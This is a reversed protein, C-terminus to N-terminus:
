VLAPKNDISGKLFIKLSIKIFIHLNKNFFICRFVNDAIHRGHRTSRMTNVLFWVCVKCMNMDVDKWQLESCVSLTHCLVKLAIDDLFLLKLVEVVLFIMVEWDCRWRHIRWIFSYSYFISWHNFVMEYFSISFGLSLFLMQFYIKGRKKKQLKWWSGIACNDNVWQPRTICMYM